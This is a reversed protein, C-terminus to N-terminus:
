LSNADVNLPLKVIADTMKPSVSITRRGKNNVIQRAIVKAAQPGATETVVGLPTVVGIPMEVAEALVITTSAVTTPQTM